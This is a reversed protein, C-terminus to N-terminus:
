SYASTSKQREQRPSLTDGRIVVKRVYLICTAEYLLLPGVLVEVTVFM